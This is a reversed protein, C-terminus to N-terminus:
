SKANRSYKFYPLAIRTRRIPLEGKLHLKKQLHTLSLPHHPNKKSRECIESVNEEHEWMYM